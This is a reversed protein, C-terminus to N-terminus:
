NKHHIVSSLQRGLGCTLMQKQRRRGTAEPWRGPETAQAAADEKRKKKKPVPNHSKGPMRAPDGGPSPCPTLPPVGRCGRRGGYEGQGHPPLLRQRIVHVKDAARRLPCDARMKGSRPRYARRSRRERTAPIVEADRSAPSTPNKTPSERQAPSHRRRCSPEMKLPPSCNGRNRCRCTIKIKRASPPPKQGTDPRRRGPPMRKEKKVSSQPKQGTDPRPRRRPPRCPAPFAIMLLTATLFRCDNAM